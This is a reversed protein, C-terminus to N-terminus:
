HLESLMEPGLFEIFNFLESDVSDDIESEAFALSRIVDKYLKVRRTVHDQGIM